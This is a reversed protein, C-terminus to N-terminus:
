YPWYGTEVCVLKDAKISTVYEKLNKKSFAKDAKATKVVLSHQLKAERAATRANDLEIKANKITSVDKTKRASAYNKSAQKVVAVYQMYVTKSDAVRKNIFLDTDSAILVAERIKQDYVNDCVVNSSDYSVANVAPATFGTLLFLGVLASSASKVVINM